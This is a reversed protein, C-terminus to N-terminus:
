GAARRLHEPHDEHDADGACLSGDKAHVFIRGGGFEQEMPHYVTLKPGPCSTRTTWTPPSASSAGAATSIGIFKMVPDTWMLKRDVAQQNNFMRRAVSESIIVVKESDSRDDANFDRGAVIPVGLARFFGPSM